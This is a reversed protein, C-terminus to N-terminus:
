FPLMSIRGYLGGAQNIPVLSYNFRIVGVPFNNVTDKDCVERETVFISTIAM